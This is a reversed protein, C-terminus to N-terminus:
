SGPYWEPTIIMNTTNIEMKVFDFGSDFLKQRIYEM